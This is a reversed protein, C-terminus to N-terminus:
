ASRRRLSAAALVLPVAVWVLLTVAGATPSLLDPVAPVSTIATAANSPLYQLVDDRWSSPLLVSGLGPLLFLLGVLTSIAASSSRLLTGVALGMLAVATLYGATGIVARLV